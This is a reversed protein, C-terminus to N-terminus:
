HRRTRFGKRLASASRPGVRALSRACTFASDNALSSVSSSSWLEPSTHVLYSYVMDRHHTGVATGEFSGELTGELSGDVPDGLLGEYVGDTSGELWGYYINEALDPSDGHDLKRKCPIM